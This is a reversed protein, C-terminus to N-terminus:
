DKFFTNKYASFNFVQRNAFDKDIEYIPKTLDNVGSVIEKLDGSLGYKLSGLIVAPYVALCFLVKFREKKALIAFAPMSIMSAIAHNVGGSKKGRLNAVTYVGTAYLAGVGASFATVGITNLVVQRNTLNKKFHQTRLLAIMSLVGVGISLYKVSKRLILDFNEYDKNAFLSERPLYKKEVRADEFRARLTICARETM